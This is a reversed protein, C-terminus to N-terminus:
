SGSDVSANGLSIGSDMMMEKLQPLASELAARVEQHQSVFQITAQDNHVTLKVELPGLNPPNLHLEAVHNGSSTMWAVKQGLENGWTPSAVPANVTLKPVSKPESQPSLSAPQLAIQNESVKRTEPQVTKEAMTQSFSVKVQKPPLNNGTQSSDAANASDKASKSSLPNRLASELPSARSTSDSVASKGSSATEGPTKGSPTGPLPINMPLSAAAMASPDTKVEKKPDTKQVPKTAAKDPANGALFPMVLLASQRAANEPTSSANDKNGSQDAKPDTKASANSDTKASAKADSMKSQLTSQFDNSNGSSASSPQSATDQSQPASQVPPLLAQM